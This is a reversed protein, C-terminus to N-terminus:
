PQSGKTQVSRSSVDSSIIRVSLRYPRDALRLAELQLLCSACFVFGGIAFSLFRLLYACIWVWHANSNLIGGLLELSSMRAVLWADV